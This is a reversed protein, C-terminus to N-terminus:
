LMCKVRESVSSAACEVHTCPGRLDYSDHIDTHTFHVSLSRALNPIDTYHHYQWNLQSSSTLQLSSVQECVCMCLPEVNSEFGYIKSKLPFSSTFCCLSQILNFFLSFPPPSQTLSLVLSVFQSDSQWFSASCFIFGHSKVIIHVTILYFSIFAPPYLSLLFFKKLCHLSVTILFRLSCLKRM